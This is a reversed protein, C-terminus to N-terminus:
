VSAGTAGKKQAPSPTSKLEQSPANAESQAQQQARLRHRHLGATLPWGVAVVLLFAAVIWKIRDLSVQSDSYPIMRARGLGIVVTSAVLGFAAGGVAWLAPSRGARAAMWGFWAATLGAFLWPLQETEM